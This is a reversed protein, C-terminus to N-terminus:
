SAGSEAEAWQFFDIYSPQDVMDDLVFVDLDLFFGGRAEDAEAFAVHSAGEVDELGAVGATRGGKGGGRGWTVVGRM